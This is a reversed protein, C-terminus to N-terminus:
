AKAAKKEQFILFEKHNCPSSHKKWGCATAAAELRLGHSRAEPRLAM